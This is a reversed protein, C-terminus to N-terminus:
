NLIIIIIKIKITKATSHNELLKQLALSIEKKLLRELPLISRCFISFTPTKEGCPTERVNTTAISITSNPSPVASM